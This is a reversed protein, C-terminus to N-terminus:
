KKIKVCEIELEINSSLDLPEDFLLYNDFSITEEGLNIIQKQEEKTLYCYTINDYSNNCILDFSNNNKRSEEINLIHNKSKNSSIWKGICLVFENSEKINNVKISTVYDKVHSIDFTKTYIKFKKIEKNM